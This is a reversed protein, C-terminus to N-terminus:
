DEEEATGPTGFLPPVASAAVGQAVLVTVVKVIAYVARRRCPGSRGETRGAAERRVATASRESPGRQAVRAREAPFPSLPKPASVGRERRPRRLETVGDM